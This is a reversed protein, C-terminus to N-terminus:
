ELSRLSRTTSYERIKGRCEWLSDSKKEIALHLETFLRKELGQFRLFAPKRGGEEFEFHV